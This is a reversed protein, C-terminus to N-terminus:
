NKHLLRAFIGIVGGVMLFGFTVLLIPNNVIADAVNGIQGFIWTALGSATALLDTM